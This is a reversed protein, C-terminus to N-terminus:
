GRKAGLSAMLFKRFFNKIETNYRKPSTKQKCDKDKLKSNSHDCAVLFMLRSFGKEVLFILIKTFM